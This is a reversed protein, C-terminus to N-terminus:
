NRTVSLYMSPLCGNSNEPNDSTSIYEQKFYNDTPHASWTLKYVMKDFLIPKALNLYDTATQGFTVTM